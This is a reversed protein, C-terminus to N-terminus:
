FSAGAPSYNDITEQRADCRNMWGNCFQKQTPDCDPCCLQTQYFDRMKKNLTTAFAKAGEITEPCKAMSAMFQRSREVGGNVAIDCCVYYAPMPLGTCKGPGFYVDTFLREAAIMFEGRDIDWACKVFQAPHASRCGDIAFNFYAKHEVGVAPTVGACTYGVDGQYHNGRDNGDNQCAGEHGFILKLTLQVKNEGPVPANKDM